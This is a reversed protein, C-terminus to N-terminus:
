AALREQSVVGPGGEESSSPPGPLLWDSLNQLTLYRRIADADGPRAHLKERAKDRARALEAHWVHAAPGEQLLVHRAFIDALGIEQQWAHPAGGCQEPTAGASLAIALWNALVREGDVRAFRGAAVAADISAKRRRYEQAAVTACSTM